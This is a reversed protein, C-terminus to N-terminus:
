KPKLEVIILKREKKTEKKPIPDLKPKILTKEKSEKNHKEFKSM